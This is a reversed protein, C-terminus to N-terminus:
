GLVFTCSTCKLRSAKHFDSERMNFSRLRKLAVVRSRYQATFIDAHGGMVAPDRVPGLDIDRVYLSRPLKLSAAALRIM